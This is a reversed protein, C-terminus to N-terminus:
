YAPQSRCLVIYMLSSVERPDWTISQNLGQKFVNRKRCLPEIVENPTKEMQVPIELELAKM